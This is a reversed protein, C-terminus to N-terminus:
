RRHAALLRGAWEGVDGARNLWGTLFKSLRPKEAALQQYFKVRQNLIGSVLTWEDTEMVAKRTVPGLVGDVTVGVARQVLKLAQMPGTNVEADFAVLAAVPPLFALVSHSFEQLYIAEARERTLARIDVQPHSRKDIGFKTAGGPDDPDDEFVTGEWKLLIPGFYEDWYKPKEATVKDNM